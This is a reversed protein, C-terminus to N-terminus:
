NKNVSTDPHTTNQLNSNFRNNNQINQPMSNINLLRQRLKQIESVPMGKSIAIQEAQDLTLGSQNLQQQFKVLDNNSLQDVKITSLDTNRLLDQGQLLYGKFLLLLILVPLNFKKRM